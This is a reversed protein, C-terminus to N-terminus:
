LTTFAPVYVFQYKDSMISVILIKNTALAYGGKDSVIKVNSNSEVIPKLRRVLTYLSERANDKGPWLKDCIEEVAVKKNEKEMLMKMFSLQMPTFYIEEKQENYFQGFSVSYSLNGFSVTQYVPTALIMANEKRRLYIMSFMGWLISITLLAGPISQESIDFITAKSCNPYARIYLREGKTKFSITDSCFTIKSPEETCLSLYSTEKLQNIQLNSKFVQLTDATIKTPMKYIVTKALAQNVDKIINEKAEAYNNYGLFLAPFMLSFFVIIATIPKM